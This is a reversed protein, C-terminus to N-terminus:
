CLTFGPGTLHTADAGEICSQRVTWSRIGAQQADVCLEVCTYADALTVLDIPVTPLPGEPDPLKRPVRDPYSPAWPMGQVVVEILEPPAIVWVGLPRVSGRPLLLAPYHAEWSLPVLASTNIPDVVGGYAQQRAVPVWSTPLWSPYEPLWSGPPVVVAAVPEPHFAFAQQRSPLVRGRTVREPYSGQWRLDTIPYVPSLPETRTTRAAVPYGKRAIWNPYSALWRPDESGNPIPDPDFAIPQHTTVPTRKRLHQDPYVPGWSRIPADETPIPLPNFAATVQHLAVRYPKGAIWVPFTPTWRLDGAGTPAVPAVQQSLAVPRKRLHQDPFRGQWSLEPVAAVVAPVLVPGTISAYQVRTSRTIVGSDSAGASTQDARAIIQAIAQQGATSLRAPGPVREPFSPTWYDPVVAADPIPDPSFALAQQQSAHVRVREIRDPYTTRTAAELASPAPVLTVLATALVAASLTRRTPVQAPTHPQWGDLGPAVVPDGGYQLPEAKQQYQFLHHWSV